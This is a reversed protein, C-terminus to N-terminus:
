RVVRPTDPLESLSPNDLGIETETSGGLWSERRVRRKRM